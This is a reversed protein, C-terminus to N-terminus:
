PASANTPAAVTNTWHRQQERDILRLERKLHYLTQANIAILICMVALLAIVLVIGVDLVMFLYAFVHHWRQPVALM